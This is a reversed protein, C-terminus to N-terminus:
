RAVQDFVGLLWAAGGGIVVALLLYAESHGGPLLTLSRIPSGHTASEGLRIMSETDWASITDRITGLCLIRSDESFASILHFPTQELVPGVPKRKAADWLQASSARGNTLFKKGDPSFVIRDVSKPQSIPDGLPSLTDTNWFRVTKDDEGTVFYAGDSNFAVCHVNSGTTRGLLAGNATNWVYAVSQSSMTVLKSGDPSFSASGIHTVYRSMPRFLRKGKIKEAVESETGQIAEVRKTEHQIAALARAEHELEAIVEQTKLSRLTLTGSKTGMTVVYGAAAHSVTVPKGAILKPVPDGPSKTAQENPSPIRSEVWKSFKSADAGIRSIEAATIEINDHVFIEGADLAARGLLVRARRSTSSGPDARELAHHFAFMARRPDGGSRIQNQGSEVLFEAIRKERAVVTTEAKTARETQQISEEM